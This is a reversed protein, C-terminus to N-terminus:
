NVNKVRISLVKIVYHIGLRLFTLLSENSKSSGTARDTYCYGVEVVSFGKRMCKYAFEIFYEGFGRPDISVEDLVSRKLAIVGSTYDKLESGLLLQAFKNIMYSCFVIWPARKDEGGVAFRSAIAVDHLVLQKVLQGIVEPPVGLDCDLWAVIKGRSSKVGLALASALGRENERRILKVKANELNSVVEWTRDPSDDDVVIVELLRDGLTEEIRAVAGVINDRENYSPLIVSVKEM